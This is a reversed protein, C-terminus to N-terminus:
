GPAGPGNSSVVSEIYDRVMRVVKKLEKPFLHFNCLPSEGNVSDVNRLSECFATRPTRSQAEPSTEM